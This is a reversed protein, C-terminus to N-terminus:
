FSYKFMSIYEIWILFKPINNSNVFYGGLVMLPIITIPLLAMAVELKPIAVSIILGYSTGYFFTCIM